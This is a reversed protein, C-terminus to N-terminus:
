GNEYKEPIKKKKKLHNTFTDRLEGNRRLKEKWGKSKM